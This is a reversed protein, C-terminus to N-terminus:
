NGTNLYTTENGEGCRSEFAREQVFGQHSKAIDPEKETSDAARPLAGQVRYVRFPSGGLLTRKLTQASEYRM